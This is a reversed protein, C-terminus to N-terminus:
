YGDCDDCLARHLEERTFSERSDDAIKICYHKTQFDVSSHEDRLSRSYRNESIYYANVSEAVAILEDAFLPEDRSIIILHKTQNQNDIAANRVIRM